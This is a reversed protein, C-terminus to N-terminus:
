EGPYYLRLIAADQGRLMKVSNGKKAFISVGEYAPDSIDFRLGLSQIVEELVVSKIAQPKINQAILITGNVIRGRFDPQISFLGSAMRLGNQVGKEGRIADGEDFLTARLRIDANSTVRTLHIASGTANIQAIAATLARNILKARKNPYGQPTPGFSITIDTHHWRVPAVKCEGGVPAGCTVLRLMARDSMTGKATISDDALATTALLLSLILARV